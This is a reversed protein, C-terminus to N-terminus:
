LSLNISLLKFAECVIKRAALKLMRLNGGSEVWHPAGPSLAWPPPASTLSEPPPTRQLTLLKQATKEDYWFYINIKDYGAM